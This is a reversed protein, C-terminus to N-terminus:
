NINNNAAWLTNYYLFLVYTEQGWAQLHLFPPPPQNPVVTTLRTGGDVELEQLAVRDVM